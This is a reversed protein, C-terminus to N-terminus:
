LFIPNDVFRSEVIRDLVSLRFTRRALRMADAALYRPTGMAHSVARNQTGHREPGGIFVISSDYCKFRWHFADVSTEERSSLVLALLHNQVRFLNVRRYSTSLCTCGAVEGIELPKTIQTRGSGTCSHEWLSLTLM